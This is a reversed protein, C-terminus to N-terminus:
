ELRGSRKRAHGYESEIRVRKERIMIVCATM